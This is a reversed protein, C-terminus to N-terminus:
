FGGNGAGPPTQLPTWLRAAAASPSVM